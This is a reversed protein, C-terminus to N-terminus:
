LARTKSILKGHKMTEIKMEQASFGACYCVYGDEFTFKYFKM